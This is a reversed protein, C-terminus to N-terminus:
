GKVPDRPTHSGVASSSPPVPDRSDARFRREMHYDNQWDEYGLLSGEMREFGANWGSKEATKWLLLYAEIRWAERPLAYLV